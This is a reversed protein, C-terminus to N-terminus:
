CQVPPPPPPELIISPRPQTRIHPFVFTRAGRRAQRFVCVDKSPVSNKKCAAKAGSWLRSWVWAVALKSVSRTCVRVQPGTTTRTHDVHRGKAVAGRVGVCSRPKVGVGCQRSLRAIGRFIATETDTLHGRRLPPLPGTQLRLKAIM